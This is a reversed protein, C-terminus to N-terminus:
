IKGQPVSSLLVDSNPVSYSVHKKRIIKESEGQHLNYTWGFRQSKKLVNYM